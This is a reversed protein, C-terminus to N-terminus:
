MRFILSRSRTTESLIKLTKMEFISKLRHSRSICGVLVMQVVMLSPWILIMGALNPLFGVLLKPLSTRQLLEQHRVVCSPRCVVFSPCGIIM